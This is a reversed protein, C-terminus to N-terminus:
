SNAFYQSARRYQWVIANYIAKGTSKNWVITTERQNAIGMAIIDSSEIGQKEM